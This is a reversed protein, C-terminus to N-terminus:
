SRHRGSKELKQRIADFFTQAMKEHGSESPHLGDIGLLTSEMGIFMRYLDVLTAGEDVAVTRILDNTPAILSPAYARCAGTRQPLGRHGFFAASSSSHTVAATSVCNGGFPFNAGADDHAAEL